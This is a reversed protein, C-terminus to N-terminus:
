LNVIIGIEMMGHLENKVGEELGYPLPYEKVRMTEPVTLESDYERM